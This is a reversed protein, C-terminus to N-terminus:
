LTFRNSRLLLIHKPPTPPCSFKLDFSENRGGLIPIVKSPCGSQTEVDEAVCQPNLPDGLYKRTHTNWSTMRTLGKTILFVWPSLWIVGLSALLLAVRLFLCCERHHSQLPAALSHRRNPAQQPIIGEEWGSYIRCCQLGEETSVASATM